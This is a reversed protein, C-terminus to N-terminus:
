SCEADIRLAIDLYDDTYLTPKYYPVRIEEYWHSKDLLSNDMYLIKQGLGLYDRDGTVVIDACQYMSNIRYEGIDKRLYAEDFPFSFDVFVKKFSVDETIIHPERGVLITEKDAYKEAISRLCENKNNIVSEYEYCPYGFYLRGTRFGDKLMTNLMKNNIRNEWEIMRKNNNNESSEVYGRKLIFSVDNGMRALILGLIQMENQYTEYYERYPVIIYHKRKKNGSARCYEVRAELERGYKRLVNGFFIHFDVTDEGYQEELLGCLHTAQGYKGEEAYKKAKHYLVERKKKEFDEELQKKEFFRMLDQVDNESLFCFRDEPDNSTNEGYLVSIKDERDNLIEAMRGYTSSRTLIYHHCKALCIFEEMDGRFGNMADIYVIDDACGLYKRVYDPEDSFIFFKADRFRRRMYVIAAMFFDMGHNYGAIVFGQRRIHVGISTVNEIQREFEDVFSSSERLTFIQRLDSIYKVFMQRAQFAGKLYIDKGPFESVFKEKPITWYKEGREFYTEDIIVARERVQPAVKVYEQGINYRVPYIIKKYPPINFEDLLYFHEKFGDIDIDLVMDEDWEKCLAYATSFYYMQNCLGGTIKVIVM